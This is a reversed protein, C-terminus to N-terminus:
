AGNAEAAPNVSTGSPVYAAIARLGVDGAAQLDERGAGAAARVALGQGLTVVFRALAATDTGSRSSM